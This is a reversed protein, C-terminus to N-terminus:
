DLVPDIVKKLVLELNPISDDAFADNRGETIFAIQNKIDNMRNNVPTASLMLVKTKVGSKIIDNMLREYRTVREKFSPNNRFNHSEDIVVLDYNGWNLKSLDIDGSYGATRSLDTHNLVNYNFRDALLINGKVNQTFVTWNDRLRKPALVLVRDNRLEYYKIVALATFTKGLGVSDALICGNHKELKQIIGMAGDKQFPYLMKWIHTEQFGTRVKAINEDALEGLYKNFIHYLSLYYIFEPTNEKFLTMIRDLLRDKIDEVAETNNWLEDFIRLYVTTQERDYVCTNFDIRPSPTAGLGDTTFDVSGNISVSSDQNEIHILRPYAPNETRFGKAGVKSRLWASCERAISSQLMENRLRIEYENGSVDRRIHQIYFERHPENGASVFNPDTFIFRVDEVKSLEKKLEAYAYITFYASVISLKAGNKIQIRLEDIVKGHQKNDLIKPAQM